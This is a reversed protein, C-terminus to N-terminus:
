KSGARVLTALRFGMMNSLMVPNGVEVIKGTDMVIVRDSDMIMDLRHCVAIVTYGQFEARIIQQMISETDHDVSSHIEDLLLIGSSRCDSGSNRTRFRRRLVACGLPLLRRQGASLAGASMGAELGGWEQVFECLGVASLIYECEKHMSANSLDLNTQFTPGDPLVKKPCRSSVNVFPPRNIRHLPIGDVVANYATGTLPDLIKLLLSILSSKGSGTRGCTATEEGSGNSM